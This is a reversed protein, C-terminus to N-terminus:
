QGGFCGSICNCQTRQGFGEGEVMRVRHTEHGAAAQGLRQQQQQGCASLRTQLCLLYCMQSTHTHTHIYTHPMNKPAQCFANYHNEGLRVIFDCTAWNLVSQPKWVPPGGRGDLEHPKNASPWKDNHHNMNHCACCCGAGLVRYGHRNLM